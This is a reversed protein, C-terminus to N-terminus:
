FTQKSCEGKELNRLYDKGKQTIGIQSYGSAYGDERLFEIAAGMAAGWSLGMKEGNLERLVKVEYEGLHPM